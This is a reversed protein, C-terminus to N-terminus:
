YPCEELILTRNDCGLCKVNFLYYLLIEWICLRETGLHSKYHGRLDLVLELNMYQTQIEHRKAEQILDRQKKKEKDKM